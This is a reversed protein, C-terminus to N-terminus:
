LHLNPCARWVPRVRGPGGPHGNPNGEWRHVKLRTEITGDNFTDLVNKRYPDGPSTREWIQDANIATGFNFEHQQIQVDVAAGDVPNDDADLVPVDLPAKRHGEIRDQAAQRWDADPASGSLRVAPVPETGARSGHRAGDSPRPTLALIASRRRFAM